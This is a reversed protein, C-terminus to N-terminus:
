GEVGRRPLLDREGFLLHVLVAFSARTQAGEGDVLEVVAVLGRLGVFRDLSLRESLAYDDADHAVPEVPHSAIEAEFLYFSYEYPFLALTLLYRTSEGAQCPPLGLMM